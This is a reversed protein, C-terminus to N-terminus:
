FKCAFHGCSSWAPTELNDRKACPKSITEEFYFFNGMKPKIASNTPDYWFRCFACIRTEKSNAVKLMLHSRLIKKNKQFSIAPSYINGAIDIFEHIM